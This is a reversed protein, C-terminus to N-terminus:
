RNKKIYDAASEAARQSEGSVDQMYEHVYVADGCCFIGEISTQMNEDVNAGGTTSSVRIGAKLLLDNEPILNVSMLVTDCAIYEETDSVPLHNEDVKAIVVGEVREKGKVDIVTYGLKLPINFDELCQIVNERTGAVHPLLEVVAKIYAGELTMRRAMILGRDESGVIIVTKGPMYGEMNVFKQAAGATFIGASKSGPVNIAGRPRERSGMALIVAKAKFEKVGDEGVTIIIKEKTLRIALTNLKFHINFTKIKNIYIQAYEPGTLVEGYTQSGLGTEICYNLSGGLQEERELVLISSIGAKKAAVAAALGGPGGGIIILDYENMCDEGVRM